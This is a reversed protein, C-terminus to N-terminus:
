SFKIDSIKNNTYTSDAVRELLKLHPPDASVSDVFEPVADFHSHPCQFLYGALDGVSGVNTFTNWPKAGLRNYKIIRHGEFSTM